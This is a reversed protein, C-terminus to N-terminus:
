VGSPLRNQAGSVGNRSGNTAMAAIAATVSHWAATMTHGSAALVGIGAAFAVWFGVAVGVLHLRRLIAFGGVVFAWWARKVLAQADVSLHGLLASTGAM